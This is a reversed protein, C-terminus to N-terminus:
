DKYLVRNVKDLRKKYWILKSYHDIVEIICLTPLSGIIMGIFVLVGFIAGCCSGLGIGLIICIIIDILVIFGLRKRMPRNLSALEGEIRVKRQINYIIEPPLYSDVVDAKPEENMKKELREEEQRKLEEKLLKTVESDRNDYIDGFIDIANNSKDNHIYIRRYDMGLM